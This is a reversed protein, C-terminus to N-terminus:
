GGWGGSRASSSGWGGRSITATSPKATVTSRTVSSVTGSNFVSGVKTNTATRYNSYDDKTRYLPRSVPAVVPASRREEERRLQRTKERYYEAEAADGIDYGRSNNLAQSVMFGAMLPVFVSTGDDRRVVRCQGAGFDNVCDSQSQYKLEKEAAKEAQKYATECAEPAVKGSSKCEDLDKFTVVQEQPEPACGGLLGASGMLALIVSKSRKM